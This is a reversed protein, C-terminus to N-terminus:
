NVESPAGKNDDGKIGNQARTIIKKFKLTFKTDTYFKLEFLNINHFRHFEPREMIDDNKGFHEPSMLPTGLFYARLIKTKM